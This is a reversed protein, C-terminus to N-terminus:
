PKRCRLIFASDLFYAPLRHSLLCRLYRLKYLTVWRIDILEFGCERLLEGWQQPQQHKNYEISPAFMNRIKLSHWFNLRGVDYILMVGDRRMIDFIKKFVSRYHQRASEAEPLHLRITAEEDLHNIVANMLIYDFSKIQGIALYDEITYPMYEVKGEIDVADNVKRFEQQIGQTAGKAEPEIAVVKHAGQAACWISFLGHGAGIELVDKGRLDFGQFLLGLSYNLREPSWWINNEKLYKYFRQKLATSDVIATEKM